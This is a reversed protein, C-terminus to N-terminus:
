QAAEVLEQIASIVVEPESVYIYHHSNEAVILQSNSSRMLHDEQLSRWIAEYEDLIEPTLGLQEQAAPPMVAGLKLGHAIVVLPINGLSGNAKVQALSQELADYEAVATLLSSPRIFLEAWTERLDEPIGGPANPLMDTASIKGQASQEALTALGKIELDQVAVLEPVAALQVMQDPHSSDVLVVGTVQEPHENAFLIMNLGGFSHGVLVYPGAVEATELLTSLEDVIQQSTRPEPGPESWGYGARDFTCVRTFEAVREQLARFRLSWDGLGADMVVTPNGEGTCYLHLKYGGVDVLEGPAPPLQAEEQAYALQMTLLIVFLATLMRKM